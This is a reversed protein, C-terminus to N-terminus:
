PKYPVDEWWPYHSPMDTSVKDKFQAKRKELFATIGERADASRGRLVVSKTEYIHAQMPHHLSLGRWLGQRTLAVSVPAVDDIFQRALEYAAPMLAEPEHISRVLGAELAEEAPFIRGSCCWEVARSIGVIRPLFYNSCAENVIGRRAFVFGFRATTSAIRIDMPLTMTAGIGVAPGNIACIMPKKMEYMRLCVLGGGDRVNIRNFDVDENKETDKAYNFTAGDTELERGSCFGRGAGTVVVVRVNDDNDARDFADILEFKTRGDWANLKEPRNLTITAIHGEIDYLITGYDM